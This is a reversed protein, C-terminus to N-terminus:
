RESAIEIWGKWREKSRWSKESRAAREEKRERKKEGEKKKDQCGGHIIGRFMHFEKKAFHYRISHLLHVFWDNRFIGAYPPYCFFLNVLLFNFLNCFDTLSYGWFTEGM